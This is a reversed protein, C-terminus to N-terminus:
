VVVTAPQSLGFLRRPFRPPEFRRKYLGTILDSATVENFEMSVEPEEARQLALLAALYSSAVGPAIALRLQPRPSTADHM